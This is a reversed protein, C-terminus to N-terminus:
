GSGRPPVPEDDGTCHCALDGCDYNLRIAGIRRLGLKQSRVDSTLGVRLKGTIEHGSKKILEAVTWDGDKTHVKLRNVDADKAISYITGKQSLDLTSVKTGPQRQIEQTKVRAATSRPVQANSFLVAVCLATLVLLLRKM